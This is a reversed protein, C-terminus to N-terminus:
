EYKTQQCDDVNTRRADKEERKEECVQDLTEQTILCPVSESASCNIASKIKYDRKATIGDHLFL